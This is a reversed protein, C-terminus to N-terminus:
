IQTSIVGSRSSETGGTSYAAVAFYWTGSALIQWYDDHPRDFAVIDQKSVLVLKVLALLILAAPFALAAYRFSLRRWTKAIAGAAGRHDTKTDSSM